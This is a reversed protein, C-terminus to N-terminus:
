MASTKLHRLQLRKARMKAGNKVGKRAMQVAKAAGQGNEPASM